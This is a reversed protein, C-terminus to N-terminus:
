GLFQGAAGAQRRVLVRVRREELDFDNPHWERCGLVGPDDARGPDEGVRLAANGAERFGPVATLTSLRGGFRVLTVVDRGKRFEADRRARARAVPDQEVDAIRGMGLPNGLDAVGIKGIPVRGGEVVVGGLQHEGVLPTASARGPAARGVLRLPAGIRDVGKVVPLHSLPTKVLERGRLGLLLVTDGVVPRQNRHRATIEEDLGPVLAPDRDHVERVCPM